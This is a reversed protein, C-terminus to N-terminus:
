VRYVLDYSAMAFDGVADLVEKLWKDSNAASRVSEHSLILDRPIALVTEDTALDFNKTAVLGSGKSEVSRVGVGRFQVGNIIAWSPLQSLPLTVRGM